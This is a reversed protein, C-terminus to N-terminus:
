WALIGFASSCASSFAPRATREVVIIFPTFATSYRKRGFAVSNMTFKKSFAAFWHRDRSVDWPATRDELTPKLLRPIPSRRDNGLAVGISGRSELKLKSGSLKTIIPGFVM